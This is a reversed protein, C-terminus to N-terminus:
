FSGQLYATVIRRLLEGGYAIGEPSIGGGEEYTRFLEGSFPSFPLLLKAGTEIAFGGKMQWRWGLRGLVLMTNDLHQYTPPAMLGEPNKVNMDWFESRSFIYLSGVLGSETKFRGGLTILNKPNNSEVKGTSVRIAERHTWSAVLALSKIPQYRVTLEVGYIDLDRDINDVRLETRALDPLGQADSVLNVYMEVVDRLQNLYVDLAVSLRGDLFRGLYGADFSLVKEEKLNENAIARSIFEQFNDQAPGTLPSDEPFDVKNHLHTEVFAPKRFARAVGARLYHDQAPQFVAALRPSLFAETVTNYDFRLSGTVTIWDAPTFETHAFAGARAEWYSIGDKHYDPSTIDAYTEGDLLDDSGIWSFRGGGGVILLLPEFFEPLTWQAEGVVTHTDADVPLFTALRLGGFELPDRFHWSVPSQNWYLQAHLDKSRFSLHVARLGFSMHMMGWSGAVDGSGNAIEALVRLRQTDSWRYEALGRLKWIEYGTERPFSFFGVQNAAGSLSFGWNGTHLSGRAMVESMGVEGGALRAFASTKEPVLRTTISIVGAMANAGYLSSAPGRLIEIREIDDITIPQVQWPVQGLLENNAERGDILVLFYHNENSWYFRSAMSTYSPSNVIVDAGPVLRLLDPITLAGSTEIDERTLVTVAAPSRGIEQRHRSALEVMGADELFAFEDLLEEDVLEASTDMDALVPSATLLLIATLFSAGGHRLVKKVRANYCRPGAPAFTDPKCGPPPSAYPEPTELLDVHGLQHEGIV